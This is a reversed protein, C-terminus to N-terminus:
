TFHIFIRKVITPTTLAYARSFVETRFSSLQTQAMDNFSRDQPNTHDIIWKIADIYPILSPRTAVTHLQSNNINIFAVQDHQIESFDDHLLNM